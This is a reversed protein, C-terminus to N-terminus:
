RELLGVLFIHSIWHTVNSKNDTILWRLSFVNIIINPIIILIITGAAWELRDNKFYEAFVIIDSFFPCM